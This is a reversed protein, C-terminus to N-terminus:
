IWDSFFLKFIRTGAKREVATAERLEENKYM